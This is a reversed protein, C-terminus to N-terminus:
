KNNFHAKIKFPCTESRTDRAQKILGCVCICVCLMLFNPTLACVTYDETDQYKDSVQM